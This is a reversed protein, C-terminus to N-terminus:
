PQEDSPDLDNVYIDKLEMYRSRQLSVFFQCQTLPEHFHCVDLVKNDMLVVVQTKDIQSQFKMWKSPLKANFDGIYTSPKGDY